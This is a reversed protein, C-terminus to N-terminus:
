RPYVPIGAGSQSRAPIGPSITLAKQRSTRLLSMSIAAALAVFVAAAVTLRLYRVRDM